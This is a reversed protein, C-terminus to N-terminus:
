HRNPASPVPMWHTVYHRALEKVKGEHYHFWEGKDRWCNTVRFADSMGMSMPSAHVQMWLDVQKAENFQSTERRFSKIPRWPNKSM